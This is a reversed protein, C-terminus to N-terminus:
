SSALNLLQVLSKGTPNRVSGAEIKIKDSDSRQTNLFRIAIKGSMFDEFSDINETCSFKLSLSVFELQKPNKSFDSQAEKFISVGFIVVRIVLIKIRIIFEKQM